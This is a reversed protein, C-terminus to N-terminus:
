KSFNVWDNMIVTSFEYSRTNSQILFNFVVDSYCHIGSLMIHFTYDILRRRRVDVRQLVAAM